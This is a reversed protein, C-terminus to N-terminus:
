KGDEKIDRWPITGGIVVIDDETVEWTTMLKILAKADGKYAKTALLSLKSWKKEMAKTEKPFAVFPDSSQRGGTGFEGSGAKSVYDNYENNRGTVCSGAKDKNTKYVTILRNIETTADHKTKIKPM